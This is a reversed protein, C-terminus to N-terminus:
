IGSSRGHGNASSRGCVGNPCTTLSTSSTRLAGQTFRVEGDAEQSIFGQPQSQNATTENCFTPEPVLVIFLAPTQGASVM